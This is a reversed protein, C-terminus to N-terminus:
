IKQVLERFATIIFPMQPIITEMDVKALPNHASTDGLFKIGRICEATKPLLFPIGLLKETSAVNIMAELGMIRGIQNKDELKSVLGHRAFTIYILKELIKRLLFATCTGSRGFNFKLDDLESQFDNELKKVLDSAFLENEVREIEKSSFNMRQIYEYSGTKGRRTLFRGTARLLSTGIEASSFYNGHEKFKVLILSINKWEKFFGERWFFNIGETSNKFSEKM